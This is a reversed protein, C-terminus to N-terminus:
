KCYRSACAGWKVMDECADRPPLPYPTFSEEKGKGGKKVKKDKDVNKGLAQLDRVMAESIRPLLTAEIADAQM